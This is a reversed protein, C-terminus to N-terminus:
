TLELFPQVRRRACKLRSLALLVCGCSSISLGAVFFQVSLAMEQYKALHVDLLRSQPDCIYSTTEIETVRM